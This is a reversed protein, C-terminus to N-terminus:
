GDRAGSLFPCAGNANDDPTGRLIRISDTGKEATCLPRIVNTLQHLDQVRLGAELGQVKFNM